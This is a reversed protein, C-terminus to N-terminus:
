RFSSLLYQTSNLFANCSSKHTPLKKMSKLSIFHIQIKKWLFSLNLVAIMAPLVSIQNTRFTLSNFDYVRCSMKLLNYNFFFCTFIGAIPKEGMM